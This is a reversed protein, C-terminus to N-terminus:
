KKARWLKYQKAREVQQNYRRWNDKVKESAFLYSSINVTKLGEPPNEFNLIRSIAKVTDMLEVGEYMSQYFAWCDCLEENTTNLILHAKEHNIIVKLINKPVKELAKKSLYIEKKEPLTSAVGGQPLEKVWKIKIADM